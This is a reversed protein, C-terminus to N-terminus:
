EEGLVPVSDTATGSTRSPFTALYPELILWAQKETFSALAMLTTYREGEEIRQGGVTVRRQTSAQRSALSRFVHAGALLTEGMALADEPPEQGFVPDLHRLVEIHADAISQEVLESPVLTTDNLQFKLRVASETTFNAM